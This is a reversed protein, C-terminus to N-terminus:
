KEGYIILSNGEIIVNGEPYKENVLGYVEQKIKEKMADDANSLAAVFPAAIETMMNWYVAATGCNLKGTIEKESTNKFGAQNFIDTMLGPKACRFMGPAEPLPPPLQMNRNITGGIATVWFNKEPVSWVAIAIKGSPKLVRFMEKAALLMDPFFMFGMRCSIADFTNDSFPLESVDCARFEVNTIGKKAANERAINLMEDALDTIIVKGESLMTAISLGPEGTGAAVDLVVESGKPNILDIIENAFPQMFDLIEFDWKKWGPSFKNWAAKQQERIEQLQPEM